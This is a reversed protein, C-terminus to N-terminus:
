NWRTNKTSFAKIGIIIYYIVHLVDLIPLLILSIPDNLKRGATKFVVFLLGWRTLFGGIALYRENEGLLLVPFCIWLIISSVSLLGLWLKDKRKYYKGVGLHRVKQRYFTQWSKKPISYMLTNKHISVCTNKGNAHRNVYLDDDGGVLHQIRCFGKKELFFSKRYALNRGVGMYPHGALAASLYLFGTHLTEFRIFQNLLGKHTYYPSHGLVFEKHDELKSAMGTLWLDNEPRCDADTLILKDHQAAKVGLTLAFKKSQVFKPRHKIWVVKLNDHKKQENRLFDMTGDNSFDDVIVIEFNKYRQVYLKPLLEELNNKENHACIIISVPPPMMQNKPAYIDNDEEQYSALKSWLYFYLLLQYGLAATFCLSVILIFM